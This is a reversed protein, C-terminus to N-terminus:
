FELSASNDDLNGLDPNQLVVPFTSVFEGTLPQEVRIEMFIEADYNIEIPGAYQDFIKNNHLTISTQNAPDPYAYKPSYSIVFESEAEISNQFEVQAYPYNVYFEEGYPDTFTEDIVKGDLTVKVTGFEPPYELSVRAKDSDFTASYTGSIVDGIIDHFEGNSGKITINGNNELSVNYPVSISSISDVQGTLGNSPLSPSPIGGIYKVLSSDPGTFLGNVSGNSNLQGYITTGLQEKAGLHRKSLWGPFQNNPEHVSVTYKRMSYPNGDEDLVNINFGECDSIDQVVTLPSPNMAASAPKKVTFVPSIIDLPSIPTDSEFFRQKLKDKGHLRAWPLHQMRGIPWRYENLTTTDSHSPGGWITAPMDQIYLFGNPNENFLNTINLRTDTFIGSDSSEWEVTMLQFDVNPHYYSPMVSHEAQVADILLAGESAEYGGSLTLYAEVAGSPIAQGSNVLITPATTSEFIDYDIDIDSANYSVHFRNYGSATTEFVGTMTNFTYGDKNVWDVIYSSTSGSFDMNVPLRAHWSLSLSQEDEVPISNSKIYGQDGTGLSLGVCLDGFYAYDEGALFVNDTEWYAPSTFSSSINFSPNDILNDPYQFEIKNKNSDPDFEIMFERRVIDIPDKFSIRDDTIVVPGSADYNDPLVFETVGDSVKFVYNAAKNYFGNNAWGMVICSVQVESRYTSLGFDKHNLILKKGIINWSDSPIAVDKIKLIIESSSNVHEPLDFTTQALHGIQSAGKKAYLYYPREHSWFYGATVQPYVMDISQFNISKIPNVDCSKEPDLSLPSTFIDQGFFGNNSPADNSGIATFPKERGILLSDTAIDEVNFDSPNYVSSSTFFWSPVKELLPSNQLLHLDIVSTDTSGIGTLIKIFVPHSSISNADLGTTTDTALGGATNWESLSIYETKVIEAEDAQQTTDQRLQVLVGDPNFLCNYDSVLRYSSVDIDYVILSPAGITYVLNGAFYITSPDTNGFLREGQLIVGAKATGSFATSGNVFVTNHYLRQRKNRRSVIGYEGGVVVNNTMYFKDVDHVYVQTNSCNTIFSRLIHFNNSNQGCVIGMVADQIRLGILKVNPNNNGVDVCILKDPLDIDSAGSSLPSIVPASTTDVKGDSLYEQRGIVLYKSTGSLVSTLNDPIKIPAYIGGGSLVINVNGGDPLTSEPLTYDGSDIDQKITNLVQNVTEYPKDKGVYYHNLIKPM